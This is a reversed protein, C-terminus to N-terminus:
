CQLRVTGGQTVAALKLIINQGFKDLINPWNRLYHISSKNGTLIWVDERDNELTLNLADGRASCLIDRIKAGLQVDSPFYKEASNAAWSKDYFGEAKSNYIAYKSTKKKKRDRFKKPHSGPLAYRILESTVQVDETWEVIDLSLGFLVCSTWM